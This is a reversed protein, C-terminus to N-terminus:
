RRLAVPRHCVSRKRRRRDANQRVDRTVHELPHRIAKSDVSTTLIQVFLLEGACMGIQARSHAKSGRSLRSKISSKCDVDVDLILRDLLAERGEFGGAILSLRLAGLRAKGDIFSSRPYLGACEVRGRFTPHRVTCRVTGGLDPWVQGRRTSARVDQWGGARASSSRISCFLRRATRERHTQHRGIV